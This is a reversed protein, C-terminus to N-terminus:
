KSGIYPIKSSFVKVKDLGISGLYTKISERRSEKEHHPGVCIGKISLNGSREFLRIYSVLTGGINRTEIKKIARAPDGSVEKSSPMVCFRYEKEEEFGKHKLFVMCAFLAEIDTAETPPLEKKSLRSECVKYAYDNLRNLYKKMDDTEDLNDANYVVSGDAAPVYDFSVREKEFDEILENKNFIIAYGGDKGYGHWQSLLGNEQKFSDNESVKCFSLVFPIRQPSNPPNLMVKFLIDITDRTEIDAIKQVGGHHVAIKKAASNVRCLENIKDIVKPLIAQHIITKSYTIESEDNLYRYDTAWLTQDSLIGKLGEATTYHWLNYDADKSLFNFNGSVKEEKKALKKSCKFRILLSAISLVIILILGLSLLGVTISMSMYMDKFLTGLGIGSHWAAPYNEDLLGVFTVLMQDHRKIKYIGTLVTSISILVILFCIVTNVKRWRIM